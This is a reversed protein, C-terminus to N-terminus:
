EKEDDEIEIESYVPYHDSYPVKDIKYNIAKLGDSYFINDIRFWFLHESYTYGYGTPAEDYADNLGNDKITYVTYSVPADNFDGCVIMKKGRSREISKAIKEAQTERNVYAKSLKHRIRRILLHDTSDDANQAASQMWEKDAASLRNSELHVNYVRLTDKKIKIDTIIAEKKRAKVDLEIRRVIPYKSFTAVGCTGPMHFETTVYYHYPYKGRLKKLIDRERIFGKKAGKYYGFEQLCVIDADSKKVYDLVKCRKDYFDLLKINYTLLKITKKETDKQEEGSLNLRYTSGLEEHSVILAALPLIVYWKRKLLWYMACGMVILSLIPFSLGAFVFLMTVSPPVFQTALAPLLSVSFLITAALMPYNVLKSIFERFKSRKEKSSNEEKM